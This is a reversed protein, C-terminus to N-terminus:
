GGAALKELQDAIDQVSAGPVQKGNVLVTPTSQVKATSAAQQVAQYFATDETGFADLVQQNTVGAKRALKQLAAVGPKNRTQEFPQSDYLLDHFKLAQAPTGKQLVASWANLARKSYDDQLLQFPRYEVQVKGAAADQHLFDRTSLELQRCFPCLFDEYVVVKVKASPRGIVLSHDGVTVGVVSTPPGVTQGGNAGSTFWVGGAVIVALAAVVAASIAIRRNREKRAQAARVAAAKQSRAAVRDPKQQSM